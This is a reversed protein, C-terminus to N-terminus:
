FYLDERQNVGSRKRYQEERIQISFRILSICIITKDEEIRNQKCYKILIIRLWLNPETFGANHVGSIKALFIEGINM